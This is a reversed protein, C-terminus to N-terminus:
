KIGIVYRRIEAVEDYSRLKFEITDVGEEVGRLVWNATGGRGCIVKGSDGPEVDVVYSYGVSDVLRAGRLHWRYVTTQNEPLQISLTDGKSIWYDVRPHKGYCGVLSLSLALLYFFRMSIGIFNM